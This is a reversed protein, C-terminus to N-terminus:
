CNKKYSIHIYFSDAKIWGASAMNPNSASVVFIEKAYAAQLENITVNLDATEAGAIFCSIEM